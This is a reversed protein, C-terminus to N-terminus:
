KGCHNLCPSWVFKEELNRSKGSNELINKCKKWSVYCFFELGELPLYCFLPFKWAMGPCAKVYILFIGQFSNIFVIYSIAKCSDSSSPYTYEWPLSFCFFFFPQFNIILLIYSTVSWVNNREKSIYLPLRFIYLIAIIASYEMRSVKLSERISNKLTVHVTHLGCTGLDVLCPLEDLERKEANM